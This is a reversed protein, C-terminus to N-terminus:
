GEHRWADSCHCGAPRFVFHLFNLVRQRVREVLSTHGDIRPVVHVARDYRQAKREFEEPVIVSLAPNRAVTPERKIGALCCPVIGVAGVGVLIQWLVLTSM